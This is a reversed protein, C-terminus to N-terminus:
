DQDSDDGDATLDVDIEMGEEDTDEFDPEDNSGEKSRKRRAQMMQIQRTGPKKIISPLGKERAVRTRLDTMIASVVAECFEKTGLKALNQDTCKAEKNEFVKSVATVVASPLVEAIQAETPSKVSIYSPRSVSDRMKFLVTEPNQVGIQLSLLKERKEDKGFRDFYAMIAPAFEAKKALTKTEVRKVKAILKEHEGKTQACQTVKSMLETRAKKPLRSFADKPAEEEEDDDARKRKKRKKEEDTKKVREASKSFSIVTKGQPRSCAVHLKQLFVPVISQAIPLDSGQLDAPRIGRLVQKMLKQTISPKNNSIKLRAYRTSTGEEDKCVFPICTVGTELMAKELEVRAAKREEAARKKQENVAQVSDVYSQHLGAYHVIAEQTKDKSTM